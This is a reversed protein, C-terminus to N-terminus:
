LHRKSCLYVGHKYVVYNPAAKYMTVSRSPLNMLKLIDKTGFSMYNKLYKEIQSGACCQPFVTVFESENLQIVGKLGAQLQHATICISINYHRGNQLIQNKLSLVENFIKKNPITDTDDFIVLSDRLEDLTFPQNALDENLEIRYVDIDDYNSDENVESILIIKNDPFMNAYHKVFEATVHTKGSNAPGAALFSNRFNDPDDNPGPQRPLLHVEPLVCIEKKTTEELHEICRDLLAQVQIPVNKRIKPKLIQKYVDNIMDGTMVMPSAFERIKNRPLLASINVAPHLWLKQPVSDDSDIYIITSKSSKPLKFYAIPTTTPSKTFSLM